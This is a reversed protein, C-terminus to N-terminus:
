VGDAQLRKSIDGLLIPIDGSHLVEGLVLKSQVSLDDVLVSTRWCPPDSPNIATDRSRWPRLDFTNGHFCGNRVHHFYELDRPWKWVDRGYHLRFVGKVREYASGICVQAILNWTSPSVRYDPPRQGPQLNSFDAEDYILLSPGEKENLAALVEDTNRLISSVICGRNAVFTKEPLRQESRLYHSFTLCVQATAYSLAEAFFPHNKEFIVM